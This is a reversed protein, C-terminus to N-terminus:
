LVLSNQLYMLTHMNSLTWIAIIHTIICEPVLTVQLYMFQVYQPVDMDSHHTYYYM